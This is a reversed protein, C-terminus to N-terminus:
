NLHILANDAEPEDSINVELKGTDRYKELVQLLLEETIEFWEGRLRFKAFAGHLQIELKKMDRAEIYAIIELNDSNSTNFQKIRSELCKTLGIKIRPEIRQQKIFYVWESIRNRNKNLTKSYSSDGKLYIALSNDLIAPSDPSGKVTLKATSGLSDIKIELATAFENMTVLLLKETNSVAHPSHVAICERIAIVKLRLDQVTDNNNLTFLNRITETLVFRNSVNTCHTARGNIHRDLNANTKFDKGCMNCVFVENCRVNITHNKFRSKDKFKKNCKPCRLAM